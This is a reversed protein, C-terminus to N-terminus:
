SIFIYVYDIPFLTRSVFVFVISLLLLQFSLWGLVDVILSSVSFSFSSVSPFTFRPIFSRINRQLCCSFLIRMDLTARTHMSGQCNFIRWELVYSQCQKLSLIITEYSICVFECAMTNTFYKLIRDLGLINILPSPWGIAICVSYKSRTCM